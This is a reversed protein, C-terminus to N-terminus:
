SESEVNSEDQEMGCRECEWIGDHGNWDAFGHDCAECPTKLKAVRSHDPGVNYM